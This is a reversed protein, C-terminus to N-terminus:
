CIPHSALFFIYAVVFKICCFFIHTLAVFFLLFFCSFSTRIHEKNGNSTSSSSRCSRNNKNNNGKPCNEYHLEMPLLHIVHVVNVLDFVRYVITLINCCFFLCFFCVFLCVTLSHALAYIWIKNRTNMPNKKDCSYLFECNPNVTKFKAMAFEIKPECWLSLLVSLCVCLWHTNPQAM